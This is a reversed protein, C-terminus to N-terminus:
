ELHTNLVTFNLMQGGRRELLGHRVIVPNAQSQQKGKASLFHLPKSESSVLVSELGWGTVLELRCVCVSFCHPM